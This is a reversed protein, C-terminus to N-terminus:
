GLRWCTGARSIGLLGRVATCLVRWAAEDDRPCCGRVQAEEWELTDSLRYRM